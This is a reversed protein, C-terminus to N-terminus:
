ATTNLIISYSIYCLTAVFGLYVLARQSDLDCLNMFVACAISIIVGTYVLLPIFFAYKLQKETM